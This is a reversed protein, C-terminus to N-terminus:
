TIVIRRDAVELILLVLLVIVLLSIILGIGDGAPVLADLQAALAHIEGDTLQDLRPAIEEESYGLAKLREKVLKHELTKRVSDLDQDRDIAAFYESSPIFGAEVRPALSVLGMVVALLLAIQRTWVASIFSQM